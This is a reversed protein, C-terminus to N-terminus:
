QEYLWRLLAFQAEEGPGRHVDDHNHLMVVVFRRGSRSQLYGAIAAVHDLSGTKLHAQGTLEADDFRRRLTGDLGSLAMSALYEPMYPQRWAQELLAGFEGASIRAERSLGAGNDLQLHPFEIGSDVLWDEVVQRGGSETGPPGLVEASLTYLIQRAMVNNSNKNVRSIIEALPLSDFTVLPEVEEPAKANMWGGRFEGGSERWVSMFLGYAFENHSLATRDMAYSKCGNPFRGSFIMKDIAENATITIGRQYGGCYGRRLALRNEVRLNELPPDIWVRVANREHDPEFWYRVVKFNMLLANPVVNYARLPQRDFEAPDTEPVEFYSDDILLNGDISHVGAQRVLRLLRWVRETVLFPDGQGKILLDGTLHGADLEGLAHVETAWRYTPGLIDLAVLTTLLKMTSAPNRPVDDHWNLVVEGSDADRVHISLSDHPVKRIDLVRQVPAPLEDEAAMVIPAVAIVLLLSCFIRTTM